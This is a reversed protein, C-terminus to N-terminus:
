FARSIKSIVCEKIWKLDLEIKCNIFLLDLFRWFNSLYKLPVVVEIDLINNSNPTSRILKTKYQASKSTIIKNNNTLKNNNNNNNNNNNDNETEDDNRWRQLLKM